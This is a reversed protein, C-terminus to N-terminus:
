VDFFRRWWFYQHTGNSQAPCPGPSWECQHLTDSKSNLGRTLTLRLGILSSMLSHEIVASHRKSHIYLQSSASWQFMYSCLGVILYFTTRKSDHKNCNRSDHQKIHLKLAIYLTTPLLTSIM